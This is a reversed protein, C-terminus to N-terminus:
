AEGYVRPAAAVRDVAPSSEFAFVLVVRRAGAATLETVRHLSTDARMLYADGPDHRETRVLGQRRCEAVTPDVDIEPQAELRQCVARWDPVFEVLGGGGPPPAEVHVVLTYPVDDLHWGHTAGVALELNVVVAENPNPCDFVPGGTLAAVLGRLEGHRYLAALAPALRDLREGGITSLRRPTDYGEMQFDRAVAAGEVGRLAARAQDLAAERLLRPLKVYDRSRFEARLERLTGEALYTDRLLAGAPDPVAPTDAGGASM